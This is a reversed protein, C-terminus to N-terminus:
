KEGTQCLHKPPTGGHAWLSERSKFPPCYEQLNQNEKPFDSAPHPLFRSPGRKEQLLPGRALCGVPINPLEGGFIRGAAHSNRQRRAAVCLPATHWHCVILCRGLRCALIQGKPFGVIKQFFDLLVKRNAPYFTYIKFGSGRSNGAPAGRRPPAPTFKSAAEGRNAM